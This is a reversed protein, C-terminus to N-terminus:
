GCAGIARCVTCFECGDKKILAFNGCEKCQKGPLTRYAQMEPERAAAPIELLAFAPRACYRLLRELGARETAEIRV